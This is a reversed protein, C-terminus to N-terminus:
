VEENRAFRWIGQLTDRCILTPFVQAHWGDPGVSTQSGRSALAQACQLLITGASWFRGDVCNKKARAAFKTVLGSSDALVRNSM